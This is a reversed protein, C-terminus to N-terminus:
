IGFLKRLFTRKFSIFLMILLIINIFMLIHTNYSRKNQDQTYLQYAEEYSMYPKNLTKNVLNHMDVTWKFLTKRNQLVKDTIPIENLHKEYNNACISCPLIQYLDEFFSKYQHKDESSPNHPYGLSIFHISMWLYKGWIYPQM